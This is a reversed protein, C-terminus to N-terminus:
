SPTRILRSEDARGLSSTHRDPRGAKGPKKKVHHYIKAKVDINSVNAVQSRIVQNIRTITVVAIIPTRNRYFVYKSARAAPWLRKPLCQNPLDGPEIVKVRAKKM